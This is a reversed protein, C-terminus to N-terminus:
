ALTKGKGMSRIPAEQETRAQELAQNLATLKVHDNLSRM